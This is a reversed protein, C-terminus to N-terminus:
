YLNLSIIEKKVKKSTRYKKSRFRQDKKKQESLCKEILTSLIQLKGKNISKIKTGYYKNHSAITLYLEKNNFYIDISSLRDNANYVFEFYLVYSKQNEFEFKKHFSQIQATKIDKNTHHIMQSSTWYGQKSHSIRFNTGVNKHNYNNIMTLIQNSTIEKLKM